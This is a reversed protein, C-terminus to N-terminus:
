PKDLYLKAIEQESLAKKRVVVHALKGKLNQSSGDEEGGLSALISPTDPTKRNKFQFKKDENEIRKGNVFIEIRSEDYHIIAAVHNWKGPIIHGADKSSMYIEPPIEDYSRGYVTVRGDWNIKLCARSVTDSDKNHNGIAILDADIKEEPKVWVAMTLKETNQALDKAIPIQGGVKGTFELPAKQIYSCGAILFCVVFLNLKRM